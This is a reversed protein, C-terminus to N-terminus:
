SLFSYGKEVVKPSIPQFSGYIIYAQNCITCICKFLNKTSNNEENWWKNDDEALRSIKSGPTLTVDEIIDSQELKKIETKFDPTTGVIKLCM